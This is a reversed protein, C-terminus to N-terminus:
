KNAPATSDGEPNFEMEIGLVGQRFALMTLEASSRVRLKRYISLRHSEVTRRAIGLIRAIDASTKGHAALAAIEAERPTLTDRGDVGAPWAAPEGIPYATGLITTGGNPDPVPIAIIFVEFTRGTRDRVVIPGSWGEGERLVALVDAARERQSAPVVLDIALGGVAETRKWGYLAEAGSNWALIRGDADIAIVPREVGRPVAALAEAHLLERGSERAM